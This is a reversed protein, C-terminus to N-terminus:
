LLFKAPQIGFKAPHQTKIINRIFKGTKPNRDALDILKGKTFQNKTNQILLQVNPRTSGSKESCHQVLGMEGTDMILLTGAPYVGLMNVFVKLLVPDFHKGSDALMLGLAKDPSLTTPRYIRPSTIADYVDVITLIRGFLSIPHKRNVSPYGSYDYRIHHEFPSVFLHVKRYKDTKLKLIMLASNISHKKIESFELDNLKGKKNLINKPIEIKGLDHFLGCLGLKALMKREIGIQKGLSMALLAVNLSHIFTYDDYMRITSLSFFAAEDEAIIDVMRQVMRVSKRISTEKGAHLKEAVEKVSNLSYHYAKKATERKRVLAESRKFESEQSDAHFMSTSDQIVVLWKIDNKKLETKLWEAPNDYKDSLNLFRVFSLIENTTVAELDADFHFGYISRKEFFQLMHNFLKANKRFLPLKEEQIFFRGNVIHLAVDRSQACSAQIAQKFEHVADIISKNNDDYLQSIQILRAIEQLLAIGPPNDKHPNDNVPQLTM